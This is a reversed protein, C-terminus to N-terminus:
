VWKKPTARKRYYANEAKKINLTENFKVLEAPLIEEDQDQFFSCGSLIVIIGVTLLRFIRNM